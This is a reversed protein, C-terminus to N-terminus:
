MNKKQRAALDERLKENWFINSIVRTFLHIVAIFGHVCLIFVIFVETPMNDLFGYPWEGFITSLHSMWCFYLVGMGIVTTLSELISSFRYNVHTLLALTVLAPTTHLFHNYWGFLPVLKQHEAPHIGEVDVAAVGWFMVVVVLSLSSVFTTIVYDRIHILRSQNVKPYGNKDFKKSKDDTLVNYLDSLTAFGYVLLSIYANCLTLYKFRGGYTKFNPSIYHTRDHYIGFCSWAFALSHLLFSSKTVSPTCEYSM